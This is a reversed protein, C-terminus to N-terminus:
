SPKWSRKKELGGQFSIQACHTGFLSDGLPKKLGFKDGKERVLSIVQVWFKNGGKLPGQAWFRKQPFKKVPIFGQWPELLRKGFFKGQGQKLTKELGGKKLPISEDIYNRALIGAGNM